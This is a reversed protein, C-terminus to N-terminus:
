GRWGRVLASIAADFAARRVEPPLEANATLELSVLGHVMAWLSLAITDVDDGSLTGDALGAAVATRLPSMTDGCERQQEPTLTFDGLAGSFMVAYQHPHALAWDRYAVGLAALATASGGGKGRTAARNQDEGFSRYAAVFLDGVLEDRGGFLAYIASTSTGAEAAVRRLTLADIGHTAVIRVAVELLRERLAEDYIKPRPM